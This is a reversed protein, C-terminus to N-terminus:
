TGAHFQDRLKYVYYRGKLFAFSKAPNDVFFIRIRYDKMEM